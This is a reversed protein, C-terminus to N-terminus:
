HKETKETIREVYGKDKMTQPDTAMGAHQQGSKNKVDKKPHERRQKEAAHKKEQDTVQKDREIVHSVGKGFVAKV